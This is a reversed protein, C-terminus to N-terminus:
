TLGAKRLAEAPPGDFTASPANGVFGLDKMGSPTTYFGDATLNRYRAFFRAADKRAPTAREPDCIEDCIAGREAETAASFSKGFRRRAAREIWVLGEVVVKRDEVHRPYPASIWEDIFLHVELEDAGPRATTQLSHDHRLARRCTTRQALTLTLPWLQGAQYGKVLDPDTGYGKARATVLAASVPLGNAGSAVAALM